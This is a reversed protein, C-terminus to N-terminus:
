ESTNPWKGPPRFQTVFWLEKVRGKTTRLPALLLPEQHISPALRAWPRRPAPFRVPLLVSSSFRFFATCSIVPDHWRSLAPGPSPDPSERRILPHSGRPLRKRCLCASDQTKPGGAPALRAGEFGGFTGRSAYSTPLTYPPFVLVTTRPPGGRCFTARSWSGVMHSPLVTPRERSPSLRGHRSEGSASPATM